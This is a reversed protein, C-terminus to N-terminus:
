WAEVAYLEFVLADIDADIGAGQETNAFLRLTVLDAIKQRLAANYETYIPIPIECLYKWILQYGNQIQTCYKSILYWGIKSNLIGLLCKDETPLIWMSNNCYMGNTDYVFCPKVQFIQYMIKPKEFADYYDCARLEWWFDGQDSRKAAKSAYPQLYAYIAPYNKAFFADAQENTIPKKSDELPTNNETHYGERTSGKPFLILFKDTEPTSYRKIDRGALFPKIIEASHPDTAILFARTDADIVFAENYGTKIGYYIKNEVLIKLTQAHRKLQLLRATDATNTLTWGNADLSHTPVAFENKAIYALLTEFDPPTSRKDTPSLANWDVITAQFSDTTKEINQAVDKLDDSSIKTKLKTIDIHKATLLCPYTTAEKFVPADGFDTISLLQAHELWYSRLANGYGARLWKNPVIYGLVGNMRLLSVGREIFYVYADATGAFTKFKDLFPKYPIIDEQRIYPPNGVIVDFGEFKADPTNIDLVEPFEYRWEFAKQRSAGYILLDKQQIAKAIRGELTDKAKQVKAKQAATAEETELSLTLQAAQKEIYTKYLEDQLKQLAEQAPHTVVMRDKADKKVLAIVEQLAIKKNRDATTKYEQVSQLYMQPTNIGKLATAFQATRVDHRAVISNGQQVNLDLNPLTQLEAGEKYYTHKLLEIWLRLCCINVSNGNIDVGFLCNEILFRKEEFLTRQILSYDNALYRQTDVDPAPAYYEFPKDDYFVDIEDNKYTIAIPLPTNQNDILIRLESKIVLLENLAAVLFHGSGVAPDCIRIKNIIDNALRRDTNSRMNDNRYAKVDEFNHFTYDTFHEAFRQVVARRITDRCLAATIFAPTYFSGEKYGNIKEFVLGLVAANIPQRTDVRNKDADTEASFNYANLFDFWYYQTRVANGGKASAKYNRHRDGGEPNLDSNRLVSKAYLPLTLEDELSSIVFTQKELDTIAFLSSNLYPLHGFEKQVLPKRDAIPTNFVQLFLKNLRDFDQVIEPSLFQLKPVAGNWNKWDEKSYKRHYRLLQAELLKLFLVRNLWTICLTLAVEFLQTAEDAGYQEVDPIQKIKELLQLQTITNELLAGENRKAPNRVRVIKLANTEPDKWEEVGILHLLENYFERNLDNADTPEPLQLLYEPSLLACAAKKDEPTQLDNINFYICPVETQKAWFPQAIHKYFYETGDKKTALYKKSLAKVVNKNWWTADFIFFNSCDTAILHKINATNDKDIIQELYYRTLEHLAKVNPQETTMMERVNERKKAEILVAVPADPATGAHITMDINEQTFIYFRDKYFTNQLMDRLFIEHGKESSKGQLHTQLVKIEREFQALTEDQIAAFAFHKQLATQLSLQKLQMKFYPQTIPLFIHAFIPLLFSNIVTKLNKNGYMNIGM